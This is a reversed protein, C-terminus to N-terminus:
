VLSSGPGLYRIESLFVPNFGLHLCPQPPCWIPCLLLPQQWRVPAFMLFARTRKRGKVANGWMTDVYSTGPMRSRYYCPLRVFHCTLSAVLRPHENSSARIQAMKYVRPASHDQHCAITMCYVWLHGVPSGSRARCPCM